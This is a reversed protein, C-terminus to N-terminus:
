KGLAPSKVGPKNLKNVLVGTIFGAVSGGVLAILIWELFQDLIIRKFAIGWEQWFGPDSHHAWVLHDMNPLGVFTLLITYYLYYSVMAFAWVVAGALASRRPDLSHRAEYASVPVVVVLWIGYNLFLIIPIVLISEGLKGWSFHALVQLYYWDLIGIALGIIAYRIIRSRMSTRERYDLDEHTDSLRTENFFQSYLWFNAQLSYGRL